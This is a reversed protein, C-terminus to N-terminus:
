VDTAYSATAAIWQGSYNKSNSSIISQGGSFYFGYERAPVQEMVELITKMSLMEGIGFIVQQVQNEQLYTIISQPENYAVLQFTTVSYETSTQLLAKIQTFVQPSAIVLAPELSHKKGGTKREKKMQKISSAVLTVGARAWIAAQILWRYLLASGGSYHKQVFLNMAQYFLRVYNLSGKKTSEGKFHIICSEAFYWNQWGAQQIRYSLDIDEGYMFFREDFAGAQQLVSRRVLMFAGALVDVPSNENKSLHGLHYRAFTKSRPFRVALGSLKYLSTLPVPFGRKSEPLFQGSGDLMKIGLAGAQSHAQMFSLCKKLCDEPLLTDPNLFLIYNGKADVLAQNNAAGFGTNQTNAIWKVWPFLPQLYAISGDTSANDVVIVEAQVQGIAAQVSYLCQELFHKVNYNVILISLQVFLFYLSLDSLGFTPFFFRFKCM